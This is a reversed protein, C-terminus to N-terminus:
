TTVLSNQPVKEEMDFEQMESYVVNFKATSQAGTWNEKSTHSGKSQKPCSHLHLVPSSREWSVSSSASHLSM